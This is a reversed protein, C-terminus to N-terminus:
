SDACSFFGELFKPFEELPAFFALEDSETAKLESVVSKLASWQNYLYKDFPNLKEHSESFHGLIQPNQKALDYFDRFFTPIDDDEPLQEGAREVLDFSQLNIALEAAHYNVFYSTEKVPEPNSTENEDLFWAEEKDPAAPTAPVESQVWSGFKTFWEPIELNTYETCNFITKLYFRIHSSQLQVLREHFPYKSKKTIFKQLELSLTEATSHGGDFKFAKKKLMQELKKAFEKVAKNSEPHFTHIAQKFAKTLTAIVQEQVKFMKPEGTKGVCPPPIASLDACSFRVQKKKKKSKEQDAKFAELEEGEFKTIAQKRDRKSSIRTHEERYLVKSEARCIAQFWQAFESYFEDHPLEELVDVIIQGLMSKRNKKELRSIFAKMKNVSAGVEKKNSTLAPKTEVPKEEDESDSDKSEVLKKPLLHNPKQSLSHRRLLRAASPTGERSGVPSRTPTGSRSQKRKFIKRRPPPSRSAKPKKKKKQRTKKFPPPSKEPVKLGMNATLTMQRTRKKQKKAPPPKPTPDFPADEPDDLFSYDFEPKRKKKRTRLNYGGSSSSVRAKVGKLKLQKVGSKKVVPAGLPPTAKKLKSIAKKKKVSGPSPKKKVLGPSPKQPKLGPSPKHPKKKVSGPSHLRKQVSAPLELIDKKKKKPSKLEDRVQNSPVIKVNLKKKKQKPLDFKMTSIGTPSFELPDSDSDEEEFSYKPLATNRFAHLALSEKQQSLADPLALKDDDITSASAKPSAKGLTIEPLIPNLTPSKREPTSNLQSKGVPTMPDKAEPDRVEDEDNLLEKAFRDVDFDENEKEPIQLLKKGPSKPTLKEEVRLSSEPRQQTKPKRGKKGFAIKTQRIAKPRKPIPIIKKQTLTRESKNPMPKPKAKDQGWLARKKAVNAIIGDYSTKLKKSPISSPRLPRKRKKQKRTNIPPTRGSIANGQLSKNAYLNQKAGLQKRQSRKFFPHHPAKQRTSM